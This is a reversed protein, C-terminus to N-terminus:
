IENKKRPTISMSFLFLITCSYILFTKLCLMLLNQTTFLENNFIITIFLSQFSTHFIMLYSILKMKIDHSNEKFYFGSILKRLSLFNMVVFLYATLLASLIISFLINISNLDISAILSISFLSLFMLLYTLFKSFNM